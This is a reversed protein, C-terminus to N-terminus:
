DRPAAETIEQIMVSDPVTRSSFIPTRAQAPPEAPIAEPPLTGLRIGIRDLVARSLAENGFWGVRVIASAFPGRKKVSVSAGQGDATTGSLTVGGEDPSTRVSHISMDAMADLAARQVEAPARPFGQSAAGGRYTYSVDGHLPASVPAITSCGGMAAGAAVAAIGLMIRRM